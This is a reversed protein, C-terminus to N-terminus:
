SSALELFTVQGSTHGAMVLINNYVASCEPRYDPPLWLVKQGEWNVWEKSVFTACVLQQQRNPVGPSGSSFSLLAGWNTNIWQSDIPFSPSTNIKLTQKWAGTTADWLRVTTRNRSGSALTQGDPSFAVAWLQDVHGELTQKWAGTTADWLRVTGDWSGSALTQGDPSFAVAWVQDVHGELTQLCPDWGERIGTINKIQPLREKWYYKKVESRTPCFILATGYIQL